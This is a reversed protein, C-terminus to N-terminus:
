IIAFRQKSISLEQRNQPPFSIYTADCLCLSPSVFVRSSYPSLIQPLFANSSKLAGSRLRQEGSYGHSGAFAQDEIKTTESAASPSGAECPVPASLLRCSLLSAWTWASRCSIGKSFFTAATCGFPVQTRATFLESMEDRSLMAGVARIQCSSCLLADSLGNRVRGEWVSKDKCELTGRETQSKKLVLM